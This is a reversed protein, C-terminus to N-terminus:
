LSPTCNVYYELPPWMLLSTRTPVKGDLQMASCGRARRVCYTDPLSKGANSYARRATRAGNRPAPPNSTQQLTPHYLNDVTEQPQAFLKSIIVDIKGPPLSCGDISTPRPNSWSPLRDTGIIIPHKDLTNCRRLVGYLTNTHSVWCTPSLYAAASSFCALILTTM